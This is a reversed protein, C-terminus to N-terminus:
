LVFGQRTQNRVAKAITRGDVQVLIPQTMMAMLMEDSNNLFSKLKSATSRDVVLEGSTLRAPFTDNNYGSPVQKVFGQGGEAFGFARKIGGGVKGPINLVAKILAEAIRPAESILATSLSIAVQPMLLALETLIRPLGEIIARIINPIKSILSQILQPINEILTEVFVIAAEVFGEILSPIAQVFSEVLGRVAEPGSFFAEAIPGIAEGLGPVLANAGATVGSTLLKKAGEAGQLVNGAVGALGGIFANRVADGLAKVVQPSGLGKAIQDRLGSITDTAGILGNLPDSFGVKFEGRIKKFLELEQNLITLGNKKEKNANKQSQLQEILAKQKQSQLLAEQKEKSISDDKVKNVEKNIKNIAASFVSSQTFSSLISDTSKKFDIANQKFKDTFATLKFGFVNFGKEILTFIGLVLGRISLMLAKISEVVANIVKYSIDALRLAGKIISDFVNGGGSASVRLQNLLDIAIGFIQNLGASGTISKGIAIQLQTYVANLQTVKGSYTDLLKSADGIFVTGEQIFGNVRGQIKETDTLQGVTKGLSAAYRAELQSLNTTIGVADSKVSNGNKIGETTAVVAQGLSYFEQRNFAAANKLSNLLKIATQLDTGTSLIQKFAQAAENAPILGDSTYAKIAEEVKSTEVGFSQAVSKVGILANEFNMAETTASKFFDVVLRASFVGLLTAGVQKIQNNFFGFEDSANSISKKTERGFDYFKYNVDEVVKSTKTITKNFREIEAIALDAVLDIKIETAM